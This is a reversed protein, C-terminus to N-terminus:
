ISFHYTLSANILNNYGTSTQRRETFRYRLLRYGLGLGMSPSINYNVGTGLQWGFSNESDHNLHSCTAHVWGLGGGLYPVMGGVNVQTMDYYANMLLASQTVYESTEGSRTSRVYDFSVDSRINQNFRYGAFAGLNFGTNYYFGSFNGSPIAVGGNVGAYFPSFSSQAVPTSGGALATLSAAALAVSLIIKKM